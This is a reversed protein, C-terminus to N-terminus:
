KLKVETRDENPSKEAGKQKLFMVLDGLAKFTNRLSDELEVMDETGYRDEFKEHYKLFLFLIRGVRDMGLILDSIYKDVMGNSDTTKLLGGLMATDLVEKQGTQAAQNIMDMVSRDLKPDPNYIEPDTDFSSMGTIRQENRMDGGTPVGLYPDNSMPPTNWAPAGPASNLLSNDAQKAMKPYGPAYVIRYRANGAKLLKEAEEGHIGHNFILEKLAETYSALKGTVSSTKVQYETGSSYLKLPLVKGTRLLLQEIQAINAPKSDGRWYQYAGYGHNRIKYGHEDKKEAEISVPIVKASEPIAFTAPGLRRIRGFEGTTIILQTQHEMANIATDNPDLDFIVRFTVRGDDHSFKNVVYFPAISGGRSNVVAYVNGETMSSVDSLSGINDRLPDITKPRAFVEAGPLCCCGGKGKPIVAVTTKLKNNTIPSCCMNSGCSDGEPSNLVWCELMEGDELLVDYVGTVPAPSNITVPVAAPYVKSTNDRHDKIVIEGKLLKKKGAEDLDFALWSDKDKASLITVKVSDDVDQNPGKAAEAQDDAVKRLLAAFKEPGQVGLFKAALGANKLLESCLARTYGRDERLASAAKESVKGDRIDSNCHAVLEAAFKKSQENSGYVPIDQKFRGFDITITSTKGFREPSARFPFFDIGSGALDKKTKTSPQGFQSPKRNTIYTVWAENNPCFIDQNKLYMLETGKLEGNTFFMPLYVLEKGIKCGFIGVGQTKEDNSDMVQFGILYQLLGPSRDQLSALALNAFATEFSTESQMPV